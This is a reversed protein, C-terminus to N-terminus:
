CSAVACAMRLLTYLPIFTGPPSHSIAPPFLAVNASSASQAIKPDITGITPTGQESM